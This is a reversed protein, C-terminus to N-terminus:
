KEHNYQLLEIIRKNVYEPNSMATLHNAQPVIEGHLNPMLLKAKKITKQPHYIVEKDGILLFVPFKVIQDIGMM